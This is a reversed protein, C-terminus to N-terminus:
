LQSRASTKLDAAGSTGDRRLQFALGNSPAHILGLGDVQNPAVCVDLDPSRRKPDTTV